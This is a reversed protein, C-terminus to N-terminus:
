HPVSWLQRVADQLHAAMVEPMRDNTDFRRITLFEVFRTGYVGSFVMHGKSNPQCSPLNECLWVWFIDSDDIIMCDPRIEIKRYLEVPKSVILWNIIAAALFMGGALWQNPVPQLNFLYDAELGTFIVWAIIRWIKHRWRLDIDKYTILVGGEHTLIRAYDLHPDVRYIKQPSTNALEVTRREALKATTVRTIPRRQVTPGPARAITVFDRQPRDM